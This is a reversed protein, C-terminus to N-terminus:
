QSKEKQLWALVMRLKGWSVDAPVREKIGALQIGGGNPTYYKAIEDVETMPIVEYINILGGEIAKALHGEITSEAFNREIAAEAITKGSKILRLTEGVTDTIQKPEINKEKCYNNVIEVIDEAYPNLKVKNIGKINVLSAKDCPLNECIKEIVKNSFVRSVPIHNERALKKRLENIRNYLINLGSSSEINSITINSSKIKEIPEIAKKNHELYTDLLFGEKCFNIKRLIEQVIINIEQLPDDLKRSVKKTKVSLPHEMFSERWKGIENSFYNAADKIRKQLAENAEADPNQNFVTVLYNRFKGAVEDLLKQQAILKDIWTFTEPTLSERNENMEGNLEKLEYGWNKWTFILQLEKQIFLEREETFRRELDKEKQNKETWDTLNQTAGMFRQNVPSTLVLGELRTCRSLAVYVQGNAFANEADIILKDFTLGQSKHITIAWALRLPYQQFSGLEEEEIQRTTPNLTYNMNKWEYKQVEISYDEGKCKVRITDNDLYTVTGIKGNFYKREETDNKLFMVQAGLKLDLYQEAPFIHEPFNGEVKALYTIQQADLDRLKGKNIADSQSNHTTLTIYGEDENAVFNRKLRSNLLEYNEFTLDNNRVGNLIEIFADDQQRFIQKLEIMVPINEKLVLSDFFFISAYYNKLFEWEDRKVVPPLQHLDGIFLIQVGGFPENYRRRVSRLITDIADVAHSAVMSTEDIILLELKRLLNLKDSHYHIQSLLSHSNVAHENSSDKAPVFPAFPLQFLSHLTVGGANIAAVGTPAAVVMNKRSNRRLYKLFTTKGTGAKGTLFINQNTETVFRYALNFEETLKIEM